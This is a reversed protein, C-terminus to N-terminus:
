LCENQMDKITEIAVYFFSVPAACNAADMNLSQNPVM